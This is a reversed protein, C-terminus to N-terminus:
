KRRDEKKKVLKKPKNKNKNNNYNNIINDNEKNYNSCNNM